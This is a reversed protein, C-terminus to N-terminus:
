FTVKIKEIRRKNVQMIKFQLNLIQVEQEPKPMENTKELILGAISDASGRVSDFSYIDLGLVRCMDNILTKGEFIYNHKDLITYNLDHLDDFEDQIEGVIQEMIDELTVLGSTGGYEDVVIAMHVKKLQFDHLLDHIKRNEPVYFLNSRILVQWEFDDKNHLVPILDKAYLIGTMHDLDEQYVPMRSYGNKRVQQILDNFGLNFDVAFIETRPRMIQKIYVDNFKIIGKLMDVQMESGAEESVALDIAKDLDQKASASGVIRRELLKKEVRSSMSVLLYTLPSFVVDLFRLPLSFNLSLKKNNLQGYIKPTVEGFILIVFTSGVVAVLFNLFDSINEVSFRQIQFTSMLWESFVSYSDKPLIIELLHAFVLAIGINIITILILLLALLRKTHARLYLLTSAAEHEDDEKLEEIDGPSLSFIAIEFASILGTGFILLALFLISSLIGLGEPDSNLFIINLLGTYPDALEM